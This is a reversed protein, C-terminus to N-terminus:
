ESPVRLQPRCGTVCWVCSPQCTTEKLGGKLATCPPPQTKKEEKKKKPGGGRCTCTGLGPTSNSSRSITWVVAVAVCSGLWM